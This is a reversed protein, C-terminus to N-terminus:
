KDNMGFKRALEDYQRKREAAAAKRQEENTKLSAKIEADSRDASWSQVYVIQEGPATNTKADKIFGLVIVIPMAVAFLAAVWQHRSRERAFARIDDM